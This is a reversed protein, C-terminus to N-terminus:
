VSWDTYKLLREFEEDVAAEDDEEWGFMRKVRRPIINIAATFSAMTEAGPDSGPWVHRYMM